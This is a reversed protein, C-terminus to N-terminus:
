RVTVYRTGLACVVAMKPADPLYGLQNVRIAVTGAAEPAPPPPPPPAAPSM